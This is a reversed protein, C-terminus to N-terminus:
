WAGTEIVVQLLVADGICFGYKVDVVEMVVGTGEECQGFFKVWTSFVTWVVQVIKGFEQM